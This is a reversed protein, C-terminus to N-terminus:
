EMWVVLISCQLLSPFKFDTAPKSLVLFLASVSFSFFFDNSFRIINSWLLTCLGPMEHRLQTEKDRGRTDWLEQGWYCSIVEDFLFHGWWVPLIWLPCPGLDIEKHGSSASNLQSTPSSHSVRVFLILFILLVYCHKFWCVTGVGLSILVSM